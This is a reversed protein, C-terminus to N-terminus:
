SLYTFLILMGSEWSNAFFVPAIGDLLLTLISDDFIHLHVHISFLLILKAPIVYGIYAVFLLAIEYNSNIKRIIKRTLLNTKSIGEGRGLHLRMGSM